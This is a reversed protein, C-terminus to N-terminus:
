DIPGMVLLLLLSSLPYVAGIKLPSQTSRAFGTWNHLSTYRILLKNQVPKMLSHYGLQAVMLNIGIMVVAMIKIGQMDVSKTTFRLSLLVPTIVPVSKITYSTTLCKEFNRGPWTRTLTCCRSDPFLLQFKELPLGVNRFHMVYLTLVYGKVNRVFEELQRTTHVNNFKQVKPIGYAGIDVYYEASNGAPRLFGPNNELKFPCLWLPYIQAYSLGCWHYQM